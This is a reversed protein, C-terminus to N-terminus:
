GLMARALVTALRAVVVVASSQDIGQQFDRDFDQEFDDAAIFLIVWLATAIVSLAAGVIGTVFGAQALGGHRRTAGEEVNRKGKRGFIIGLVGCVLSIISSFGLSFVLTCKHIASRCTWSVSRLVRPALAPTQM